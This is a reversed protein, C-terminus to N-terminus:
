DQVHSQPGHLLDTAAVERRRSDLITRVQPFMKERLLKMENLAWDRLPEFDGTQGTFHCEKSIYIRSYRKGDLRDWILQRGLDGEIVKRNALVADFRAKNEDEGNGRFYLEV